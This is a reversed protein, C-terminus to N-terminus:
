FTGGFFNSISVRAYTVMVVVYGCNKAGATITISSSSGARRRTVLGTEWDSLEFFLLFDRVFGREYV